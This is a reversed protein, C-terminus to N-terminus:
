KVYIVIIYLANFLFDSFLQEFCLNYLPPIIDLFSNSSISFFKLLFFFLLFLLFLLLSILKDKNNIELFNKDDLVWFQSNEPERIGKIYVRAMLLVKYKKKNFSIIDTYQEAIRINPTLFIGKGVKGWNRKDNSKEKIKSIAKKLDKKIVIYKLLKKIIDSKNKSNIGHYAIAWKIWNRDM